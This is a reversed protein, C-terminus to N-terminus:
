NEQGAASGVAAAQLHERGGDRTGQVKSAILNTIRVLEDIAADSLGALEVAFSWGDGSPRCHQVQALDEIVHAEDAGLAVKVGRAVIEAPKFVVLVRDGVKVQLPAEIRLGPGALETVAGSVFEPAALASQALQHIGEADESFEHIKAGPGKMFPFSAVMAPMAVAVRPFRRRNVFRVSDVHDLVLRTGECTVVTTDFEWISMGSNYRVRWPDGAAARAVTEMEVALDVADNRVVEAVIPDGDYHRLPTLEIPKGVLIDRSGFMNPKLPQSSTRRFQFGLKEALLIVENKLRENEGTTRTRVCEALLKAAGTQFATPTAFIDHSHGLGSRITIALLIQRERPSLGQRKANESFLERTLKGGAAKQRHSVWWLLLILVVLIITAILVFLGYQSTYASGGGRSLDQAATWREYPTLALIGSSAIDQLACSVIM